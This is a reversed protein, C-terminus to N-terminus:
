NSLYSIVKDPSKDEAVTNSIGGFVLIKEVDDGDTIVTMCMNGVNEIRDSGTSYKVQMWFKQDLLFLFIDNLFPTGLEACKADNRGGMIILCNNTPLYGMSHGFRGCPGIGSSARLNEFAGHVLKGDICNGRFLRLKNQPEGDKDKGGFIYLGDLVADSKLKRQGPQGSEELKPNVMCSQGQCFPPIGNKVGIRGWENNDLHLVIM